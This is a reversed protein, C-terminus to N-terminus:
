SLYAKGAFSHTFTVLLSNSNVYQVDGVVYNEGSDVVTVNPYFQLNHSVTWTTAASAQTHVYKSKARVEEIAGQITTSSIEDTPTFPISEADNLLSNVYEMTAYNQTIVETINPVLDAIDVTGNTANAPISIFYKNENGDGIRETVEYKANRPTTFEGNTAVLEVSFAGFEDLTALIEQPAISVDTETDRMTSTLMFSVTGSAPTTNDAQIFTGTVTINTFAM